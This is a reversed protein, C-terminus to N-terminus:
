LTRRKRFGGNWRTPDPEYVTIIITEGAEPNDAAVVHIPRGRIFGLMLHSPYPNDDPYNEILEGTEVVQRVDVEDIERLFMRYLAHVRFM